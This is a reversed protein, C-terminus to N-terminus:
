PKIKPNYLSPSKLTRVLADAQVENMDIPQIGYYYLTAEKIGTRGEGFYAINCYLELIDNKTLERELDFAVLLEAVKREYVKEFSFYMNKALQQTISSGGEVTYGAELNKLFARFTSSLAIGGHEYFSRDESELVKQLFVPAIQDLTAYNPSSKLQIVKEDLPKLEVAEKYMEYGSYVIPVVVVASTIIVLTAIVMIWKKINLKRM